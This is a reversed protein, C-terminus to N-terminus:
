VLISVCSVILCFQSFAEADVSACLLKLFQKSIEKSKKLNNKSSV